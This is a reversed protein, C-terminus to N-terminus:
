RNIAETRRYEYVAKDVLERLLSVADEVGQTGVCDIIWHIYNAFKRLNKDDIARGHWNWALPLNKPVIPGIDEPLGGGSKPTNPDKM